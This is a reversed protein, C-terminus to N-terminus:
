PERKADRLELRMHLQKRYRRSLRLRKGTKSKSSPLRCLHNRLVRVTVHAVFIMGRHICGKHLEVGSQQRERRRSTRTYAYSSLADRIEEAARRRHGDPAPHIFLTQAHREYPRDM